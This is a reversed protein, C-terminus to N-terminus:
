SAAGAIVEGTARTSLAQYAAFDISDRLFRISGDGFLFNCGGAHDSRFATLGGTALSPGYTKTNMKVLTSGFAYSPYGFAWSTNGGRIQGTYPGSSFLYDKLQFGMEGVLMTATTGDTMDTLRVGDNTEYRVIAGDDATAPGWAFPTGICVAYSAHHTSYADLPAPPPAMSPCLYIQVPLKTVTDNPPVMPSLNIDYIKRINDQEVFPLLLTFASANNASNATPLRHYSDHYGHLALGIQKLNNVCSTRAAAERVKQVAPLLLGILIAIIAIVVLLEILTFATRHRWRM